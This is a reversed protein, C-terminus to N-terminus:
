ITDFKERVKEWHKEIPIKPSVKGRYGLVRKLLVAFIETPFDRLRKSLAQKSVTLPNVWLLGEEKLV